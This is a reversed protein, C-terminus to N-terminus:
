VTTLMKFVNTMNGTSAFNIQVINVNQKVELVTM